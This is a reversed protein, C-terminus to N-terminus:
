PAFTRPRARRSLFVCATTVVIWAGVHHVLVHLAGRHCALEGLLAGATGAGLGAALARSWRWASQRLGWLAFALPVLGIGVHSASCVWEPTSSPAGAGRSVVLAVMSAAGAALAAARSRRGDPALAAFGALAATALLGLLLPARELLRPWGSLSAALAAIAGLLGTGAFGAVVRWAQARWPVPTPAARLEALAAARSAALADERGATV